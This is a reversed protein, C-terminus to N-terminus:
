ISDTTGLIVWSSVFKVMEMAINKGEVNKKLLVSYELKKTSIKGNIEEIAAFIVQSCVYIVTSTVLKGTDRM